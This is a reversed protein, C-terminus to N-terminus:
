VATCRACGAILTLNSNANCQEGRSTMVFCAAEPPPPGPLAPSRSGTYLCPHRICWCAARGPSRHWLDTRRCPDHVRAAHVGDFLSCGCAGPGAVHDHVAAVAVRCGRGAFPVAHRIVHGGCTPEPSGSDVQVATSCAGCDRGLPVADCGAADVCQWSSGIGYPALTTIILLILVLLLMAMNLLMLMVADVAIAMMMISLKMGMVVVAM